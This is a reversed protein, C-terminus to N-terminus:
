TRSAGRGPIFADSTAVLGGIAVVCGGAAILLIPLSPAALAFFDRAFPVLLVLAYAAALLLCMTVVAAGRLKGSGELAVILYWGLVVMVTTAVTRSEVLSLNFVELAALYSSLVGFGVAAGAPVAFEFVGRLFGQLRFPGKSPALALFFAPIGIALSAGLTLHRPLLPYATPTIGVSLILFAAFAAKSVFLKTVRQLNRLIRRGEAVLAPVVEFDSRVLVLDAVSRAMQVGSGQAIALRAAKLGPVDNVGDGVMAVYHGEARLAEVVRAKDEPSIRGIVNRERLLARLEREDRPLTRGDVPGPGVDIGVDAAIAAVTEPRDGSIVKLAVGQSRFFAVTEAAHPRIREAIVVAGALELGSPLPRDSDAGSFPARTQAFALVRRGSRAEEDIRASLEGSPLVEPAGLVSTVGGTRVGSWRRRSSFPVEDEPRLPDVPFSAAIARLTTNRVAAGAAFSALAAGLREEDWGPAPVVDTVRLEAETLTGTKDLCIVDVSALSELANLQQALAGRRAMRVASVAFALSVLLILGEPVLTVVAAVATTVAERTPAQREWLAYGLLTGLPIMVGVLLYLLRNMGRELPSRPHRFARAQGTVRTAYSAAGVATVTYRGTGESVFAGSRLGDGPVRPVSESEGTLISEDLLLGEASVLEGDAVLQDGPELTVLDGVLVEERPLPRPEGDRLVTATPVVLASLRDLARKARVEQVIGITSNAVLIGLFLADQWSGFALMLAGFVALILNFVTLVNARVISAYSRSSSPAELPGRERLRRAAEDGTLGEHARPPEPPATPAAPEGTM